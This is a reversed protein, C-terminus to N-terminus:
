RADMLKAQDEAISAVEEVSLDSGDALVRLLMGLQTAAVHQLAQDADVDNGFFYTPDGEGDLLGVYISDLDEEALAERARERVAEFDPDTM